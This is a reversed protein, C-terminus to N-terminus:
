SQDSECQPYIYENSLDRLLQVFEIFKNLARSLAEGNSPLFKKKSKTKEIAFEAEGLSGDCLTLCEQVIRPIPGSSIFHESLSELLSVYIAFKKFQEESVLSLDSSVLSLKRISEQVQVSFAYVSILSSTISLPDM